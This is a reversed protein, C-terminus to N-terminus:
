PRQAVIQACTRRRVIQPRASAYPTPQVGAHFVFTRIRFLKISTCRSVADKPRFDIRQIPFGALAFSNLEPVDSLIKSDKEWCCCDSFRIVITLDRLKWHGHEGQASDRRRGEESPIAEWPM